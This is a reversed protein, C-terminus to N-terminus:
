VETVKKSFLETRCEMWLIGTMNKGNGEKGVGWFADFPSSEVLELNATAILLERVFAHQDVKHQILEKMIAIKRVSWDNYVKDKNEEHRAIKKAEYPSRAQRIKEVLSEDEFKAAQYAHELTPFLMGRWILSTAAFSDFMQYEDIFFYVTNKNSHIEKNM